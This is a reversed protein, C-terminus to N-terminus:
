NTEDQLIKNVRKRFEARNATERGSLNAYEIVIREVIEPSVCREEIKEYYLDCAKKCKICVYYKTTGGEVMVSSKCCNSLKQKM